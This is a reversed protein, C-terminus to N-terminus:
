SSYSHKSYPGQIVAFVCKLLELIQRLDLSYGEFITAMIMSALVSLMVVGLMVVSLM